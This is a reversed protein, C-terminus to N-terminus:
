EESAWKIESCSARIMPFPFSGGSVSFSFCRMDQEKLALRM